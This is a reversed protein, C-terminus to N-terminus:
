SLPHAQLWQAVADPVGSTAAQERISVIAANDLKAHLQQVVELVTDDESLELRLLAVQPDASVMTKPDEVPHVGDARSQPDTGDFVGIAGDQVQKLRADVDDVVTVTPNVGYVAKVGAEGDGAARWATPAVIRTRNPLGLLSQGAKASVFVWARDVKSPQLVAVEGDLAAALDPVLSQADGTDAQLAEAASWAYAPMLDLEGAMLRSVQTNPDDDVSAVTAARGRATLAQAYLQAIVQTTQDDTAGVVVPPVASASATATTQPAERACGTFVLLLVSLVVWVRKMADVTGGCCEGERCAPLTDRRPVHSFQM